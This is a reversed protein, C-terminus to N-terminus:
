PLLQVYLTNPEAFSRCESARVTRRLIPLRLTQGATSLTLFPQHPNRAPNPPPRALPLQWASSSRPLAHMYSLVGVIEQHQFAMMCPM